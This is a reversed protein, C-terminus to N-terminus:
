TGTALIGCLSLFAWLYVSGPPRGGPIKSGTFVYMNRDCTVDYAEIAQTPIQVSGVARVISKGFILKGGKNMQPM